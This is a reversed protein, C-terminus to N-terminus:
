VCLVGLSPAGCGLVGHGAACTPSILVGYVCLRMDDLLVPGALVGCAAYGGGFLRQLWVYM